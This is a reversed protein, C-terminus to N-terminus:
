DEGVMLGLPEEANIKHELRYYLKALRTAVAVMDKTELLLSFYLMSNRAGYQQQKIGDVQRSLLQEIIKLLKKKEANLPKFTGKERHRIVSSCHELYPIIRSELELLERGQEETLPPLVDAVYDSCAQVILDTSQILDQELDYALLYTRSAKTYQDILRRITGHFIYQFEENQQRLKKMRNESMSLLDRNEELLGRLSNTYIMKATLLNIAVQAATDQILVQAEQRQNNLHAAEVREKEKSRRRHYRFTNYIFVAAALVLLAIMWTGFRHMLFAFLGAVSFAIFATMFWGGIVNLVGAVRYVASDRGWARDALSTGMAVMFSVYTTSLPLRYSTAIAILISAMTLNVSARVLDFAPAQPDPPPPTFSDEMRKKWDSSLYGNSRKSLGYFFRVIGRSLRNSSFRELGEAQRGLNIETETVSRAKKSLWLTTVMIGGALLLMYTRVPYAAALSSMMLQDAAQGSESWVFYSEFGALPVGIFNVLDNGAFAMALAFTGALVVIRLTNVKSRQLIFALLTTAAATIALLLFTNASVWAKFDAGVFSAGKLGKILLFYAIGALALGSWIIGALSRQRTVKFTLLLRTLYQVLAGLTFAIGVSLFIGSIIALASGSNIYTGLSSWTEGQASIKILAM